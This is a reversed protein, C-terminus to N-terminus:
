KLKLFEWTYRFNPEYDKPNIGIEELLDLLKTKNVKELLLLKSSLKILWKRNDRLTEYALSYAETIEKQIISDINEQRIKTDQQNLNSFAGLDNGFGYQKIGKAALQTAQNLDDYAGITIREKGFTLEEAARGGLMAALELRFDYKSLLQENSKHYVFGLVESSKSKVVVQEPVRGTLLLKVLLHGTEHISIIIDKDSRKNDHNSRTKRLLFSYVKEREKKYSIGEEKIFTAIAQDNNIWLSVLNIDLKEKGITSLIKPLHIRVQSDISTLVPRYGLSPIIAEDYLPSLFSEEYEIRFGFNNQADVSIAELEQQIFSKYQEENISPYIIHNNGLRAVQEHRFLSKLKSKVDNINIELSERYFEDASLDMSYNSSMPYLSNLNGIIFIISKSCDIQTPSMYEDIVKKIFDVTEAENMSMFLDEIQALNNFGPIGSELLTFYFSPPVLRNEFESEKAQNGNLKSRKRQIEQFFPRKATVIGDKAKVGKAIFYEIEKLLNSMDRLKFTSAVDVTFKGNDLLKWIIRNEHEILETGIQDITRALQFEDLILATPRNSRHQLDKLQDVINLKGGKLDGLDFHYSHDTLQLLELFRKIVSTKGVGTMGWLNVILPREQLDSLIFWSSIYETLQDIIHDLGIFEEKLQSSVKEILNSKFGLTQTFDKDM